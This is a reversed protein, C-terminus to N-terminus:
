DNEITAIKKQCAYQRVADTLSTPNFDLVHKARDISFVFDGQQSPTELLEILSTSSVAECVLKALDLASVAQGSGINLPLFGPELSCNLAAVLVDVADVSSLYDRRVVGRSYLEIVDGSLARDILYDVIGGGDIFGCFRLALYSGGHRKQFWRLWNESNLKSCAYASGDPRLPFDETVGIHRPDGYVVQSSAFIFRDTRGALAQLLRVTTTENARLFLAEDQGAGLTAGALHVVADIHPYPLDALDFGEREIDRVLWHVRPNSEFELPEPRRAVAIVDFGDEVLRRVLRSGLFGSAGSVLIM